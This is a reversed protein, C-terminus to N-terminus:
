MEDRVEMLVLGLLNLGNWNKEDKIAEDAYLLGVGWIRDYPSGEVIVRDNTGLLYKKLKDNQSFKDYCAVYMAHYRVMAWVNDDYNKVRRGWAKADGPTSSDLVGQLAEEDNFFAAKNAMFAQESNIFKHTYKRNASKLFFSSTFKCPYFNSFIGNWFYVHTSTVNEDM